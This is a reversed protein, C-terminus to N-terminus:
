NGDQPAAADLTVDGFTVTRRQGHRDCIVLAGEADLDAFTGEIRERGTDVTVREGVPGARDLWAQRLRAFGPGGNWLDLRNHMAESLSGLMTEPSVQCGHAALNTAPRGLDTPHWVLDIGVGIVVTAMHVGSASQILIGACKAQGILVDNPWKLRLGAPGGGTAQRIGDITAVGAVIALQPLAGGPNLM